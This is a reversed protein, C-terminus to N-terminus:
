IQQGGGRLFIKLLSFAQDLATIHSQANTQETEPIKALIQDMLKRSASQIATVGDAIITTIAAEDYAPKKQKMIDITSIFTNITEPAVDQFIGYDEDTMPTISSAIPTCDNISKLLAIYTTDMNTRGNMDLPSSWANTAAAFAKCKNTITRLCGTLPTVDQYIVSGASTSTIFLFIVKSFIM